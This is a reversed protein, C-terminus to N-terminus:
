RRYLRSEARMCNVCSLHNISVVVYWCYYKLIWILSIVLFISVFVATIVMAADQLSNIQNTDTMTLKTENNPSISHKIAPIIYLTRYESYITVSQAVPLQLFSRADVCPFRNRNHRERDNASRSCETRVDDDNESSTSVLQDISAVAAHQM